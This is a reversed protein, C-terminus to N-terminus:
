PKARKSKSYFLVMLLAVVVAVQPLFVAAYTAVAEGLSDPHGLWMASTPLTCVVYAISSSILWAHHVRQLEHLMRTCFRFAQM